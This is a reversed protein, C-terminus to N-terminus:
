NTGNTDELDEVRWYLDDMIAQQAEFLTESSGTTFTTMVSWDSDNLLNGKHKVRVSYVTDTELTPKFPNSMSASEEVGNLEWIIEKLTDAQSPTTAFNSSKLEVDSTLLPQDVIEPGAAYFSVAGKNGAIWRNDRGGTPTVTISNTGISVIEGQGGATSYTVEEDGAPFAPRDLGENDILMEGDVSLGACLLGSGSGATKAIVVKSLTGSFRFRTTGQGQPGVAGAVPTLDNVQFTCSGATIAGYWTVDRVVTIPPNFIVTAVADVSGDGNAHAFSATNGDFFQGLNLWTGSNGTTTAGTSWVRPDVPAAPTAGDSWAGGDVVMKNLATDVSVVKVAEGQVIDDAKFYKLDTNPGEFSLVIASPDSDDVDTIQTTQLEYGTQQYPGPSGTGDSMYVSGTMESLDIGGAFTLTVQGGELESISTLIDSKLYRYIGSGAGDKPEIVTPTNITATPGTSSGGGVLSVDVWYDGTWIYLRGGGADIDTDAWWLNGKTPSEPALQSVTVSASGGGGGGGANQLLDGVEVKYNGAYSGSPRQVYILDSNQIAM